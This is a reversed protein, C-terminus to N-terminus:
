HEKEAADVGFKEIRTWESEVAQGTQDKAALRVQYAKDKELTTIDRSITVAPVSAAVQESSPVRAIAATPTATADQPLEQFEFYAEVDNRNPVVTGSVTAETDSTRTASPPNVVPQPKQLQQQARAAASSAAGAPLLVAGASIVATALALVPGSAGDGPHILCLCILGVIAGVIVLASGWALQARIISHEDDLRNQRPRRGTPKL